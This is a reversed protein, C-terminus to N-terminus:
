AEPDEPYDSFDPEDWAGPDDPEGQAPVRAPASSAPRGTRAPKATQAGPQATRGGSQAPQGGDRDATGAQQDPATGGAGALEGLVGLVGEGYTALKKEGLGGIGGLEGLTAPRVTAIERLTADHFIVYAPVGQEKAQKGRWTRLAEFVPVAEAPLDAAAATARAKKEGKAARAVVAKEPEKRLRVGTEGSLM